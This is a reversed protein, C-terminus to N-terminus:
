SSEEKKKEEGEKEEELITPPPTTVMTWGIWMAIFLILLVAALVPLTVAWRTGEVSYFLWRMGPPPPFFLWYVYGVSLLISVIFILTGLAKDSM